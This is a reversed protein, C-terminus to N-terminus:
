ARCKASALRAKFEESFPRVKSYLYDTPSESRIFNSVYQVEVLASYPLQVKDLWFTTQLLPVGDKNVRKYKLLDCFGSDAM